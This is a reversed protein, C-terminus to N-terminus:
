DDASGSNRAAEAAKFLRTVSVAFGKLSRSTAKRGLGFVGHQIYQDGQLTLVTIERRKPDVIWYECIGAKAYERRKKVFDRSPDDESVIEMVLDVGLWYRNHRRHSNAALMFAIDPQRFKNGAIRVRIGAFMPMGLRRPEVFACLARYLFQLLFEHFETPMPLFEIVGDDFEVRRNTNLGLYDGVSWERQAPFLQAIDWAPEGRVARRYTPEHVTM